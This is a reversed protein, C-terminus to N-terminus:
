ELCFELVLDDEILSLWQRELQTAFAADHLLVGTEINREQGRTTFNASSVFARQGDVAVCKAHLSIWPKPPSLARRDCYLSPYPPGFPWNDKLFSELAERGYAEPDPPPTKAQPIDVFFNTKVGHSKMVEHLPGLVSKANLFSYGALVVRNRAGEFLERLVVATDRAQAHEGEPGTWVLKPAPKDAAFITPAALIIALLPIITTKKTM